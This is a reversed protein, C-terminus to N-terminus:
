YSRESDKNSRQNDDIENIKRSELEELLRDVIEGWKREERADLNNGDSYEERSEVMKIYDNVSRGYRDNSYVM